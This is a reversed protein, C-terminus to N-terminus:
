YRQTYIYWCSMKNNINQMKYTWCLNEKGPDAISQHSNVNITRVLLAEPPLTSLRWWLLKSGAHSVLQNYRPNGGTPWYVTNCYGASTRPGQSGQVQSYWPGGDSVMCRTLTNLLCDEVVLYVKSRFFSTQHDLILDTPIFDENLRIKVVFKLKFYLKICSSIKAVYQLPARDHHILQKNKDSKM